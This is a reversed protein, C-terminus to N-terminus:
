EICDAALDLPIPMAATGAVPDTCALTMNDPFLGQSAAGCPNYPYAIGAPYTPASNAPLGTTVGPIPNQALPTTSGDGAFEDLLACTTNPTSGSTTWSMSGFSEDESNTDYSFSTIALTPTPLGPNSIIQPGSFAAIAGEVIEYCTLTEVDTGYGPVGTPM